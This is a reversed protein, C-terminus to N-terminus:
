IMPLEHQMNSESGFATWIEYMWSSWNIFCKAKDRLFLRETLRDNNM